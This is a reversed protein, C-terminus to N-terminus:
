PRSGCIVKMGLYRAAWATGRIGGTDDSMAVEVLVDPTLAHPRDMAIAYSKESM